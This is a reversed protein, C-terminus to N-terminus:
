SLLRNTISARDDYRTTKHIREVRRLYEAVHPAYKEQWEDYIAHRYKKPVDEGCLMLFLERFARYYRGNEPEYELPQRFARQIIFFVAMQENTTANWSGTRFFHELAEDIDFGTEEIFKYGDMRLACAGIVESESFKM